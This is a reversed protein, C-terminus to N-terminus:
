KRIASIYYNNPGHPKKERERGNKFGQLINMGFMDVLYQNKVM